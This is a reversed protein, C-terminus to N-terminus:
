IRILRQDKSGQKKLMIRLVCVGGFYILTRVAYTHMIKRGTPVTFELM